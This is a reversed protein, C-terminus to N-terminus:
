FVLAYFIIKTTIQSNYSFLHILLFHAPFVYIHISYLISYYAGTVVTSYIEYNTPFAVHWGEVQMKSYKVRCIKPLLVGYQLM